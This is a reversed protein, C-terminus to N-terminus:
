ASQEGTRTVEPGILIPAAVRDAYVPVREPERHQCTCSVPWACETHREDKCPECMMGCLTDSSAARHAKISM